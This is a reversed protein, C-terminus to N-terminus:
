EGVLAAGDVHLFDPAFEAHSIDEFTTQSFRAVANANGRLQDLRLRAVLLANRSHSAAKPWRKVNSPSRNSVTATWPSGRRTSCTRCRPGKRGGNSRRLRKRRM